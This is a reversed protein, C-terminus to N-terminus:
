RGAGRAPALPVVSDVDSVLGPMSLLIFIALAFCVAGIAVGVTAKLPPM